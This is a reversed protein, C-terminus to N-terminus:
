QDAKSHLASSYTRFDSASAHHAGRQLSFAEVHCAFVSQLTQLPNTRRVELNMCSVFPIDNEM